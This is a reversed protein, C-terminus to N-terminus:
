LVVCMIIMVCEIYRVWVCESCIFTCASVCVFNFSIVVGVVYGCDSHIYGVWM